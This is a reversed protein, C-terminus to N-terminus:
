QPSGGVLSTINRAAYGLLALGVGTGAVASPALGFRQSALLAVLGITTLLGGLVFLSPNQLVPAM